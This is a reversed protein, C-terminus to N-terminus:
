EGEPVAIVSVAELINEPGCGEPALRRGFLRQQAAVCAACPKEFGWIHTIRPPGDLAYM